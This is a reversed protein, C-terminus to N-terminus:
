VKNSFCEKQYKSIQFELSSPRKGTNGPNM